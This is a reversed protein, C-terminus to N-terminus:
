DEQGVVGCGSIGGSPHEKGFLPLQGWQLKGAKPKRAFEGFLNEAPQLYTAGGLVRLHLQLGAGDPLLMKGFVDIREDLAGVGLFLFFEKNEFREEVGFFEDGSIRRARVGRDGNGRQKRESFRQGAMRRM